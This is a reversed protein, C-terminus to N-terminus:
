NWCLLCSGHCLSTWFWQGWKSYSRFDHNTKNRKPPFVLRCFAMGYPAKWYRFGVYGNGFAGVNALISIFFLVILSLFKFMGFYYEIEGYYNVGLTTLISFFVFILIYWAWVPVASEPIWFKLFVTANNWDPRQDTEKFKDFNYKKSVLPWFSAGCSIIYGRYRSVSHRIWSDTVISCSFVVM